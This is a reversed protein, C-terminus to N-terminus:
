EVDHHTVGGQRRKNRSSSAVTSGVVKRPDMDANVDLTSGGSGAGEDGVMRCFSAFLEIQKANTVNVLAEDALVVGDRRRSCRPSEHVRGLRPHTRRGPRCRCPSRRLPRIAGPLLTATRVGAVSAVQEFGGFDDAVDCSLRV